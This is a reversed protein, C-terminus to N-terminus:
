CHIYGALLSCLLSQTITPGNAESLVNLFFRGWALNNINGAPTQCNKAVGVFFAGMQVLEYGNVKTDRV